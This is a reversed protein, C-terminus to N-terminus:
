EEVKLILLSNESLERHFGEESRYALTGQSIDGGADRLQWRLRTGSIVPLNIHINAPEDREPDLNMAFFYSTKGTVIAASTYEQLRNNLAHSFIFSSLVHLNNGNILYLHNKNVVTAYEKGDFASRALINQQDVDEVLLPYLSSNQKEDTGYLFPVIHGQYETFLTQSGIPETILVEDHHIGLRQRLLQWGATKNPLFYQPHIICPKSGNILPIFQDIDRNKGWYEGRTLIYYLDAEELAEQSFVIEYGSALVANIIGSLGRRPVATWIWQDCDVLKDLHFVINCLPKKEHSYFQELVVPIDQFPKNDLLEKNWSMVYIREPQFLFGKYLMINKLVPISGSAWDEDSGKMYYPLGMKKGITPFLNADVLYEASSYDETMLAHINKYSEFITKQGQGMFAETEVITAKHIYELNNKECADYVANVWDAGFIEEAVGTIEYAALDDILQKLIGEDPIQYRGLYDEPHNRHGILAQIDIYLQIGQKKAEDAMIELYDPEEYYHCQQLAKSKFYYHITGDKGQSKHYPAIPLYLLDTYGASRCAQVFERIPEEFQNESLGYGWLIGGDTHFGFRISWFNPVDKACLAVSNFFVAIFVVVIKLKVRDGAPNEETAIIDKKM